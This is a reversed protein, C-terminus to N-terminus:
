VRPRSRLWEELRYNPQKEVISLMADHLKAKYASPCKKWWSRWMVMPDPNIRHALDFAEIVWYNWLFHHKSHHIADTIHHIDTYHLDRLKLMDVLAKEMLCPQTKPNRILALCRELHLQRSQPSLKLQRDWDKIDMSQEHSLTQDDPNLKQQLWQYHKLLRTSFSRTDIQRHRQRAQRIKGESREIDCLLMQHKPHQQFNSDGSFFIDRAAKAGYIKLCAVAHWHREHDSKCKATSNFISRWDKIM